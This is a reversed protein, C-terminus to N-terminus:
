YMRTITPSYALCLNSIVDIQIDMREDRVKKLHQEQIHVIYEFTKSKQKTRRLELPIANLPPQM